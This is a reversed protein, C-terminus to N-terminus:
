ARRTVSPGPSVLKFSNRDRIFFPSNTNKEEGTRVKNIYTYSITVEDKRDHSIYLCGGLEGAMDNIERFRYENTLYDFCLNTKLQVLILQNFLKAGISLYCRSDAAKLSLLHQLTQYLIEQGAAIHLAPPVENILHIASGSCKETQLIHKAFVEVAQHLNM